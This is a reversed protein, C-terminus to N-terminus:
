HSMGRSSRYFTYTTNSWHLIVIALVPLNSKEQGLNIMRTCFGVVQRKRMGQPKDQSRHMMEYEDQTTENMEYLRSALARNLSAALCWESQRTMISEVGWALMSLEQTGRFPTAYAKAWPPLTCTAGDGPHPREWWWRASMVTHVSVEWWWRASM